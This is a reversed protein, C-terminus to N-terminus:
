LFTETGRWGPLATKRRQLPIGSVHCPGKNSKYLRSQIKQSETQTQLAKTCGGRWARRRRTRKIKKVQYTRSPLYRSM